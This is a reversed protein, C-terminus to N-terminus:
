ERSFARIYDIEMRSPFPTSEDPDPIWFKDHSGLALNALLYMPEHIKHGDVFWYRKGDVFFAIRDKTWECAFTQWGDDSGTGIEMWDSAYGKKDGPNRVAFHYFGPRDGSAEVIDIEPPWAQRVPLLWFSPWFGKGAPLRARMEFYGYQQRHSLETTICGSTYRQGYLLPLFKAPTKEAIISLRGKSLLFPNIGLPTKDKGTGPYAADVYIQKEKNIFDKRPHRYRSRWAPADGSTIVGSESIRSLDSNDFEDSFSLKYGSKGVAPAASPKAPATAGVAKENTCAVAFAGAAGLLLRRQLNM